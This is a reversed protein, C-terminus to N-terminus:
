VDHFTSTQTCNHRTVLCPHSHVNCRLLCQPAKQVGHAHLPTHATIAGLQLHQVPRLPAKLCAIEEQQNISDKPPFKPPWRFEVKTDLHDRSTELHQSMNTLPARTTVFPQHAAKQLAIIPAAAARHVMVWIITSIVLAQRLALHVKTAVCPHRASISDYDLCAEIYQGTYCKFLIM